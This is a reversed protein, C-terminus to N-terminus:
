GPFVAFWIPQEDTVFYYIFCYIMILVGAFMEGAILGIMVPKLRNYSKSGGYKTVIQRLLWGLLFSAALVKAHWFGSILFLVPHLPWKSVRLRCFETLLVLAMTILFASVQPWHPSAQQLSGGGEEDLVGQAELRYEINVIPDYPARALRPAWGDTVSVAGRDYQFYLAVSVGIVLALTIGIGALVGLRGPKAESLKLSHVMMPMVGVQCAMDMMASVLLLILMQQSGVARPGLFGWLLVVPLIMPHFLFMGTEGVMRSVVVFSMCVVLTHFLAWHWQVGVVMLQFIFLVGGILAVRAGWVEHTKIEGRTQLGFARKIVSLYHHRGVFVIILFMGFYSGAKIFNNIRISNYDGGANLNVGYLALSGAILCYVFPAIGVSFAVDGAVFYAFGIVTFYFTPRLLGWGGGKIFTPVLKAFSTFDFRTPVRILYEPFWAVAYNNLYVVTVIIAGCWFARHRLLDNVRGDDGPLLSQAFRVIPFPMHEHEAWQRKCILALGIYVFGITLILPLWFRTLTRTWAYWPIDGFGIAEAGPRIGARFGNVAYEKKRELSTVLDGFLLDLRHRNLIAIEEEHRPGTAAIRRAAVPLTQGAFDAAVFLDEAAMARNLRACLVAASAAPEEPLEGVAAAVKALPTGTEASRLKRAVARADPIDEPRYGPPVGALMVPPVRRILDREQWGLRVRSELRPMMLSYTFHHILARGGVYSAPLIIAVILALERGSFALKPQIRRLLPNFTVVFLCLSGYVFIPMYSSFLMTQRMVMDNFFGVAGVVAALMLGVVIARKSM